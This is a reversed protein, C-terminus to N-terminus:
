KQDKTLTRRMVEKSVKLWKDSDEMTKVYDLLELCKGLIEATEPEFQSKNWTSSIRQCYTRLAKNLMSTDPEAEKPQVEEWLDQASPPKYGTKELLTEAAEKNTM